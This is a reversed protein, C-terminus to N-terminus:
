ARSFLLTEDIAVGYVGAELGYNHGFLEYVNGVYSSYSGHTEFDMRKLSSGPLYFRVTMGRQLPVVWIPFSYDFQDDLTSAGVYRTGVMEGDYEWFGGLYTITDPYVPWEAVWGETGDPIADIGAYRPDIEVSEISADYTYDDIKKLSSFQGKFARFHFEGRYGPGSSKPSRSVEWGTFSGNTEVHLGFVQQKGIEYGRTIFFSPIGLAANAWSVTEAPLVDEPVAYVDNHAEVSVVNCGYASSPMEVVEAKVSVPNGLFDEFGVPRLNMYLCYKGNEITTTYGGDPTWGHFDDGSYTPIIVPDKGDRLRSTRAASLGFADTLYSDFEAAPLQYTFRTPNQASTGYIIDPDKLKFIDNHVYQPHEDDRATQMMGCRGMYDMLFADSVSDMRVTEGFHEYALVEFLPALVERGLITAKDASLEWTSPKSVPPTIQRAVAVLDTIDIRGNGNIDVRALEEAGLVETGAVAKCMRVLDTINVRGDGNYDGPVSEAAVAPSGVACLLILALVLSLKKKMSRQATSLDADAAALVACGGVRRDGPNGPRM